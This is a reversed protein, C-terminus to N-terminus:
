TAAGQDKGAIDQYLKSNAEAVDGMGEQAKVQAEIVTTQEEVKTFASLSDFFSMGFDVPGRYKMYEVIQKELIAANALSSDDVKEVKILEKDVSMSMFNAAETGDIVMSQYLAGLLNEAYAGADEEGVVGYSVLTDEFYQKVNQEVDDAQSMAFLGYVDKLITDYDALAANMALDGTSAVMSKSLSYRATDVMLASLVMLPVMVVVLLISVAGQVERKLFLGM